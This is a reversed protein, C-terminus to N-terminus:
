ELVKEQGVLPGPLTFLVLRTDFLVLLAPLDIQVPKMMGKM